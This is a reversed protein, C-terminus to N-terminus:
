SMAFIYFFHAFQRAIITCAVNACKQLMNAMLLNPAFGIEDLSKEGVVITVSQTSILMFIM